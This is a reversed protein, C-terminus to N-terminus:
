LVRRTELFRREYNTGEVKSIKVGGNSSSHVFEIPDGAKSIVIGVHGPNRDSVNTGTFILIDGKRTEHLKVKRGAEALESSSRPVNINFKKFAYHVFGSCDFGKETAGGYMYPTGIRSLGSKIIKNILAKRELTIFKKKTKAKKNKALSLQKQFFGTNKETPKLAPKNAITGKLSDTTLKEDPFSVMKSGAVVGIISSIGIIITKGQKIM